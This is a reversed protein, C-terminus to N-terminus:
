LFYRVSWVVCKLMLKVFELGFPGSERRKGGAPSTPHGGPTQWHIWCCRDEYRVPSVVVGWIERGSFSLSCCASVTWCRHLYVCTHLVWLFGSPSLCVSLPIIPLSSFIWPWNRLRRRTTGSSRRQASWAWLTWCPGLLWMHADSKPWSGQKQRFFMQRCFRVSRSMFWFVSAYIFCSNGQRRDEGQTQQHGCATRGSPRPGPRLRGSLVPAEERDTSCTQACAVSTVSSRGCRGSSVNQSSCSCMVTFSASTVDINKFM